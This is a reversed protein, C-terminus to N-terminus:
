LLTVDAFRELLEIFMFFSLRKSISAIRCNLADANITADLDNNVRWFLRPAVYLEGEAFYQSEMHPNFVVTATDTAGATSAHRWQAGWLREPEAWGRAGTRTNLQIALDSRLDAGQVTLHETEMEVMINEIAAGLFDRGRRGQLSLAQDLEIEENGADAINAAPFSFITYDPRERGPAEVFTYLFNSM